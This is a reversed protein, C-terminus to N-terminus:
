KAVETALTFQLRREDVSVETLTVSISAGADVNASRGLRARVAPDNLQIVSGTDGTELVTADFTEGVRDRLVVCEALDIVAREVKSSRQGAIQMVAPLKALTARHDDSTTTVDSGNATLAVVLELAYRDALRRLPATVHSYVGAIASHFPQGDPVDTEPSCGLTAYTAGGGMRRAALLLSRNLPVTPDLRRQFAAVTEDKPWNIGLLRAERRLAAVEHDDPRDMVRFIGVGAELFRKGVALNAALSLASNAVESPLLNRCSLVPRGATDVDVSQEPLVSRSAGRRDEAIVIRRSFEELLAISEPRTTEYALKARSRVLAHQAQQLTPEGHPDVHVELVIAPRDVDALLSAAGECLTEPYQPIRHEPLYVTEGRQWAEAEIASGRDVFFGVDAIAYHLIVAEGDSSLVFAQDLDISTSPDLTVFELHRLDIRPPEAKAMRSAAGSGESTVTQPFETPLKFETTLRACGQAFEDLPASM